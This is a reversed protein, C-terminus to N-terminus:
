RPPPVTVQNSAASTDGANTATIRLYYTGSPVASFSATTGGFPVSVIPAGGPTLLTERTYREYPMGAVREVVLALMAYAIGTYEYQTGPTFHPNQTFMWRAVDASTAPGRIRQAAAIAVSNQIQKGGIDRDWCLSHQLLHRLTM